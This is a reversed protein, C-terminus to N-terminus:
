KYIRTSESRAVDGGGASRIARVEIRADGTKLADARIRCFLTQGPAISAIPGFELRGDAVRSPLTGSASAIRLHESTEVSLEVNRAAVAGRNVVHIVYEARGEVPVPDLLDDIAIEVAAVGRTSLVEFGEAVGGSADRAWTRVALSEFLSDPTARVVFEASAGPALSALRWRVRDVLRIGEAADIRLGPPTEDDVVVDEAAVVGVNKVTVRYEASQGVYWENPYRKEVTLAPAAFRIAVERAAVVDEGARLEFRVRREGPERSAVDVEAPRVLGDGSEAVVFRVANQGAAGAAHSLVDLGDSVSAVVRGDPIRGMAPPRVRASIRVARGAPAVAPADVDIEAGYQPWRVEVGREAIATPPGPRRIPAFLTAQISTTAADDSRRELRAAVAGSADSTTEAAAAENAFTASDDAVAFLVQYGALPEGRENVVRARVVSSRTQSAEVVQAAELKAEVWQMRHEVRNRGAAPIQPARVELVMEGAHHTRLLCWSEGPQITRGGPLEPTQLVYSSASSVTRAYDPTRADRYPENPERGGVAAITGVGARDLMWEVDAEPAPKGNRDWLRAIALVFEDAGAASPLDVLEIRDVEVKPSPIEADIPQLARTASAAVVRTPTVTIL